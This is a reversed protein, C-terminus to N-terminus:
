GEVVHSVTLSGSFVAVQNPQLATYSPATVTIRTAGVADDGDPALVFKRLMDPNIDRDLAGSQWAKYQDIAGGSGEVAAVCKTEDEVTTYYVINIGYSVQVPAAVSVHDTLPKVDDASCAALVKDLISQSPVGGGELIPTITVCNEQTKSISVDLSTSSALSGGSTLTITLLGGSYSVTYDTTLTAASSSGHNKVVLTSTLLNDGGIVALKASNAGTWVPVTQTVTQVDTSVIADVVSADAQMAWYRYSAASGATTHMNAAARIRERFANDSEEDTGNATVSINAVTDVYPLLDTIIMIGGAPIANYEEGGETATAAVDVYTDGAPITAAVDTAFYRKYDGTAKTGAPISVDQALAANLGFRLTTKAPQADLREIGRNEGLADLVEGRAYRLMKQRCADNVAEYMGVFLPAMAEGFIRREDGPYLPEACGAELTEIITQLVDASSRHIFDLDSM